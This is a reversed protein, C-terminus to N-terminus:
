GEDRVQASTGMYAIVIGVFFGTVGIHYALYPLTLFLAPSTVVFVLGYLIAGWVMYEGATRLVLLRAGPSPHVPVNSRVNSRHALAAYLAGAGLFVLVLFASGTIALVQTM